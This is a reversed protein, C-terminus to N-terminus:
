ALEAEIISQAMLHSAWIKIIRFGVSQLLECWMSESRELAAVMVMMTLDYATGQPHAHSGPIVHDHILLKSYGAAMAPKLMELIKRAPEDSWDHLVGHMYYARAGVSIPHADVRPSVSHCALGSVM